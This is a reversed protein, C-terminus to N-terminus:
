RVTETGSPKPLNLPIDQFINEATSHIFINGDVRGGNLFLSYNGSLDDSEENIISQIESDQATSINPSGVTYLNESIYFDNSLAFPTERLVRLSGEINGGNLIPANLSIATETSPKEVKTRSSNSDTEKNLVSDILEKNKDASSAGGAFLAQLKGNEGFVQPLPLEAGFADSFTQRARKEFNPLFGDSSDEEIRAKINSKAAPKAIPVQLVAKSQALVAIPQNLMQFIILYVVLMKGLELFYSFLTSSKLNNMVSKAKEMLNKKAKASM